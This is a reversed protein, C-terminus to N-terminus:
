FTHQNFELLCFRHFIFVEKWHPSTDDCIHLCADRAVESTPPVCSVSNSQLPMIGRNRANKTHNEGGREMGNTTNAGGKM